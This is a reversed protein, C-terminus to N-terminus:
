CSEQRNNMELSKKWANLGAFSMTFYVIYLIVTPYWGRTIFLIVSVSNVIIWIYWHEFIKRALMWTAIVSLSTILSDWGPFLSDTFRDLVFWVGPFSIAFILSLKLATKMKLRTVPLRVRSNSKGNGGDALGILASNKNNKELARGRLWWSWGFFSVALYYVQLSMDAYLKGAFFVAIYFASTTIGVPWLWTNQRIELFVYVVGTVAGFLEIYSNRIWDTM